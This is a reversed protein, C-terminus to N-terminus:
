ILYNKCLAHLIAAQMIIIIDKMITVRMIIDKITIDMMTIIMAKTITDKTIKVITGKIITIKIKKREKKIKGKKASQYKIFIKLARVLLMRKIIMAVSIVMKIIMSISMRKKKIWKLLHNEKLKIERWLLKWKISISKNMRERKKTVTSSTSM